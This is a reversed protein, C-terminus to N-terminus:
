ERKLQPREPEDLPLAMLVDDVFRGDDLRVFRRRRGEEVFGFAAYLGRAPQNDARVSLEVRLIAQTRAWGLLAELLARGIGKRRAGPHVGLSLMAGHFLRGPPLRRLEGSGLIPVRGGGESAVVMHLGSPPRLSGDLFPRLERLMGAEDAPLEEPRRVAGIGEVSLAHELTLMGSADGRQLPRLVAPGGGVSLRGFPLGGPDVKSGRSGSSALHARPSGASRRRSRSLGSSASLLRPPTRGPPTM